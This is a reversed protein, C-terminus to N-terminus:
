SFMEFMSIYELIEGIFMGVKIIYSFHVHECMFFCEFLVNGCLSTLSSNPGPLPMLMGPVSLFPSFTLLLILM